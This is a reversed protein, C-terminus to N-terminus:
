TWYMRDYHCHMVNYLTLLWIKFNHGRKRKSWRHFLIDSRGAAGNRSTETQFLVPLVTRLHRHRRTPNSVFLLLIATRQSVATIRKRHAEWRILFDAPDWSPFTFRWGTVEPMTARTRISSSRAPDGDDGICVYLCDHIDMTGLMMVQSRHHRHGHHRRHPRNLPSPPPLPLPPPITFPPSPHLPPPSYQLPPLFPPPPPPHLPPPHFPTTPPHPPPPYHPPPHPPAPPPLLVRPVGSCRLRDVSHARLVSEWTGDTVWRRLM